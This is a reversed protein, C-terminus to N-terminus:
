LLIMPLDRLEVALPYAVGHMALQDEDKTHLILLDVENEEILRRYDKLTHGVTVLADVKVKESEEITGRCSDIYELPEALLREMLSERALESDIEPIMQIAELYRDFTKQDEVHTLMLHGGEKVLRAAVNVLHHDGSLHDTIAMVKNTGTSELQEIEEKSQQDPNPMLLIAVDTAQTLVDVYVGLSYPFECAPTHLNRWTCILEPKQKSVLELLQEVSKFQDGNICEIKPQYNASIGKLFARIEDAFRDTTKQDQDTIVLIRDVPVEEQEFKEKSAARFISEFQDIKTM